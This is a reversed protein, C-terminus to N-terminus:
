MSRYVDGMISAKKLKILTPIISSTQSVSDATRLDLIGISTDRFIEFLEKSVNNVLIEINSMDCELLKYRRDSVHTKSVAGLDERRSQVAFDWLEYKVRHGLTCLRILLSCM